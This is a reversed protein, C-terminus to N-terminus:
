FLSPFAVEYLEDLEDVYISRSHLNTEIEALNSLMAFMYREHFNGSKYLVTVRTAMKTLFDKNVYKKSISLYSSILLM